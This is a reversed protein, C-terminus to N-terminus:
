KEENIIYKEILMRILDEEYPEDEELAKIIEEYMKTESEPLKELHYNDWLYMLKNFIEKPITLEKIGTRRSDAQGCEVSEFYWERDDCTIINPYLSTDYLMEMQENWPIQEGMESPKCDYRECFDWKSEVDM